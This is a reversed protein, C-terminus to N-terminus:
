GRTAHRGARHQRERARRLLRRRRHLGEAAPGQAYSVIMRERTGPTSTCSASTPTPMSWRGAGAPTTAATSARGRRGRRDPDARGPRPPHPRARRGRAPRERREAATIRGTPSRRRGRLALPRRRQLCLGGGSRDPQGRPPHDLRLHAARARAGPALDRRRRRLPLLPAAAREPEAAFAAPRHLVLPHRLRPGADKSTPAFNIPGQIM